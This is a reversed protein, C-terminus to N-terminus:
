LEEGGYKCISSAHYIRPCPVPKNPETELIDWKIPQTINNENILTFHVKNTLSNGLNGGFVLLYPEYYILVHGYRQGPGPGETPIKYWTCNTKNLSIELIYLDDPVM